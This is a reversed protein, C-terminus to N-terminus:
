AVSLATQTFPGLQARERLNAVGYVLSMYAEGSMGDKQRLRFMQQDYLALHKVM